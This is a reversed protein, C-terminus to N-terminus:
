ILSHIIQLFIIRRSDFFCVCAYLRVPLDRLTEIMKTRDTISSLPSPCLLNRYYVQYGDPSTRWRPPRTEMRILYGASSDNISLRQPWLAWGRHARLDPIAKSPAPDGDIRKYAGSNNSMPMPM